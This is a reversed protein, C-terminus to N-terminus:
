ERGRSAGSHVDMLELEKKGDHIGWAHGTGSLFNMERGAGDAKLKVIKGVFQVGFKKDAVAFAENGSGGRKAESFEGFLDDGRHAVDPLGEDVVDCFVDVGKVEGSANGSQDVLEAARESFKAFLIGVGFDADSDADGFFHDSAEEVAAEIEGENGKGDRFGVEFDNWKEVFLKEDHTRGGVFDAAAVDTRQAGGLESADGKKKIGLAAVDAEDDIAVEFLYADRRVDDHFRVVGFGDLAEDFGTETIRNKRFV